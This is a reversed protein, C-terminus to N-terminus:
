AWIKSFAYGFSITLHFYSNERSLLHSTEKTLSEGSLNVWVLRTVPIFIYDSQFIWLLLEM